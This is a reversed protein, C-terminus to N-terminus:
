AIELARDILLESRQQDLQQTGIAHITAQRTLADMLMAEDKLDDARREMGEYNAQAKAFDNLLELSRGRKVYLSTLLESDMPETSAIGIARAYLEAAKENAYFGAARDGAAALKEIASRGRELRQRRRDPLESTLAYAR